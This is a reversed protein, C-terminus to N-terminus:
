DNTKTRLTKLTCFSIKWEPAPFYELIHSVNVPMLKWGIILVLLYWLVWCIYDIWWKLKATNFCNSIYGLIYLFFWKKSLLVIEWTCSIQRNWERLCDLLKVAVLQSFLKRQDCKVYWSTRNYIKTSSLTFCFVCWNWTVPWIMEGVLSINM